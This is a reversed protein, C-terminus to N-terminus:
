EDDHSLQQAVHQRLAAKIALRVGVIGRALHDNRTRVRRRCLLGFDRHHRPVEQQRYGFTEGRGLVNDEEHKEDAADNRHQALGARDVRRQVTRYLPESM